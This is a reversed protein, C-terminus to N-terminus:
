LGPIDHISIGFSLKDFSEAVGEYSWIFNEYSGQLMINDKINYTYGLSFSERLNSDYGGDFPVPMSQYGGFLHLPFIPIRIAMGFHHSSTPDFTQRIEHNILVSAPLELDEEYIDDSSFELGRWDTYELEYFLNIMNLLLAVGAHITPPKTVNYYWTDSFSEDSDIHNSYTFKDEVDISVPMDISLGYQFYKSIPHLLGFTIGAGTYSPEFHFTSDQAFETMVDRGSLVKIDAGFYLNKAFEVAAAAHYSTMHGKESYNFINSESASMYDLSKHAGGSVVLRGKYVPVPQVFDIGNFGTNSITSSASSFESSSFNLQIFTFQTSALNAPNTSLGPTIYGSAVSAGGISNSIIQSHSFGWFPRLVDYSNQSFIFNLLLATIFYKKM